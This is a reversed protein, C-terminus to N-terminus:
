DAAESLGNRDAQLVAHRQLKKTLLERMSAKLGRAPAAVRVNTMGAGDHIVDKPPQMQSETVLHFFGGM